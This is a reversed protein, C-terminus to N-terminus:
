SSAAEGPGLAQCLLPKCFNTLLTPVRPPCSIGQSVLCLPGLRPGKAATGAWLHAPSFLVPAPALHNYTCPCSPPM